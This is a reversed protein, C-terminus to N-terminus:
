KDKYRWLFRSAYSRYPSWQRSIKEIKKLDNRDVNYLKAVATRLGLDGVSFVDERGLDFILIMEATWRGIGKIKILEEIVKEDAFNKLENVDLTKDNVAKSLNKLYKVKQWSLGCNRLAQDPKALVEEPKPFSKKSFLKRFKNEIATAANGSLQQGIIASAVAAYLNKSIKLKFEVKEDLIKKLTSDKSLVGIIKRNM